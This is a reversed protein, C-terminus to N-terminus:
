GNRVRTARREVTSPPFSPFEVDHGPARFVRVGREGLNEDLKINM